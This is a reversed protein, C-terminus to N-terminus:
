EGLRSSWSSTPLQDLCAPMGERSAGFTQQTDTSRAQTCASVADGQKRAAAMRSASSGQETLATQFGAGVKVTDGLVLRGRLIKCTGVGGRFTELPMFGGPLSRSFSSQTKANVTAHDRAPSSKLKNWAKEVAARAAPIKMAKNMPILTHVLGCHFESYSHSTYWCWTAGHNVCRQM